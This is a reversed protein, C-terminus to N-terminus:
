PQYLVMARRGLLEYANIVDQRDYEIVGELPDCIISTDETYGSLVVCHSGSFWRVTHGDVEWERAVVSPEMDATAWLIVPTGGAVWAELEEMTSGTLNKAAYDLYGADYMYLGATVQLCPVYCGFGEGKSDGM